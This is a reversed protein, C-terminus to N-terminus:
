TRVAQVRLRVYDALWCGDPGRQTAELTEAVEQLMPLRDEPALGAMFPRAFSAQWAEVGNPLATPRPWLRLLRVSFGESELLRRYEVPSPLFWPMLATLGRRVRAANLARVIAALNGEGGFEAVFRGGPKLARRVGALVNQPEPMWHLAANSFVADFESSFVLARGDMVRVDLGRARAAEVMARSADVGVVTCGREALRATLAGDGCGLDLIREGARADLLDLLPAGLDSVFRADRAYAAPDWSQGDCARDSKGTMAAVEAAMGGGREVVDKISM